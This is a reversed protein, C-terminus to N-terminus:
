QINSNILDSNDYINGIVEYDSCYYKDLPLGWHKDGIMRLMYKSEETEFVVKIFHEGLRFLDGEYIERGKADYKGTFQCVTDSKVRFMRATWLDHAEAACPLHPVIFSVTFEGKENELKEQVLSGYQWLGDANQARFKIQRM